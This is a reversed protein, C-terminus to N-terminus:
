SRNGVIVFFDRSRAGTNELNPYIRINNFGCNVLISVLEEDSYAQYSASFCTVVATASDILFYRNTAARRSENWGSEELLLHPHDSFLGGDQASWFKSKMGLCRIHEEPSPELLLVGGVRLANHAKILIDRAHQPRFVNFEGYILMVLDYGEGFDVQRMDGLDYTIPLGEKKAAIRAYEISAPSFDIGRCTHGLRALRQLYLGPGCGLDLIRSGQRGLVEKHLFAVHRDIKELCRSAADHQQSLHFELMRRSFAPEHWPINDGEVWPEPATVMVLDNLKM